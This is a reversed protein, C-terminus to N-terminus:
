GRVHGTTLMAQRLQQVADHRRHLLSRRLQFPARRVDEAAAADGHARLHTPHVHLPGLRCKSSPIFTSSYMFDMEMGASRVGFGGHRFATGHGSSPRQFSEAPM